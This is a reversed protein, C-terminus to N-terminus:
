EDMNLSLSGATVNSYYDKGLQKCLALNPVLPSTGLAVHGCRFKLLVVVQKAADYQEVATQLEPRLLAMEFDDRCVEQDYEAFTLFHVHISRQTTLAHGYCDVPAPTALSMHVLTEACQLLLFGRGLTSSQHVAYPFAYFRIRAVIANRAAAMEASNGPFTALRAYSACALKHRRKWDEVQCSRQCYAAVQCKACRKAAATAPAGCGFCVLETNRPPLTYDLEVVKHWDIPQQPQELIATAEEESSKTTASPEPQQEESPTSMDGKGVGLLM